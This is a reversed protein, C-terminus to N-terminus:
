YAYIQAEIPIQLENLQNIMFFDKDKDVECHSSNKIENKTYECIKTGTYKRVVKKIYCNLYPCNVKNSGGESKKNVNTFLANSNSLNINFIYFVGENSTALYKFLVASFQTDRIALE